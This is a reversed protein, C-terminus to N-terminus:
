CDLAPCHDLTEEPDVEDGAPSAQSSRQLGGLVTGYPQVAGIYVQSSSLEVEAISEKSILGNYGRCLCMMAM